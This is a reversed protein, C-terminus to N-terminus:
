HFRIDQPIKLNRPHMKLLRCDQCDMIMHYRSIRPNTDSVVLVVFMARPKQVNVVDLLFVLTAIHTLDVSDRSFSLKPVEM